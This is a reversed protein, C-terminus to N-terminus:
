SRTEPQLSALKHIRLHSIYPGPGNDYRYYSRLMMHEHHLSHAGMTALYRPTPILVIYRSCRDVLLDIAGFLVQLPRRRTVCCKTILDYVSFDTWEETTRLSLIHEAMQQIRLETKKQTWGALEALAFMVIGGETDRYYEDVLDLERRAWYRIGYPISQVVPPSGRGTRSSVITQKRGTSKNEMLLTVSSDSSKLTYKVPAADARFQSVSLSSTKSPMFIDFFLSRCDDNRFVLTAFATKAAHALVAHSNPPNQLLIRVDPDVNNACLRMGARRLAKLRVLTTRYHYLTTASPPSDGTRGHLVGNAVVAHNIDKARLGSPHEAVYCLMWHLKAFSLSRMWYRRSDVAPNSTASATM